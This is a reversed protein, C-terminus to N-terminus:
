EHKKVEKQIKEIERTSRVIMYSSMAVVTMSIGAGTLTILLNKTDQDTDAGFANLMATELTLMSVLASALVVIKATSMVPSGKKRYRVVDLIGVTTIYFTYAAMAYILMGRYRFGKDRFLIMLIAGTLFLNLLTLVAACARSRKWEGLLDAGLKNRNVYRLLLFRMTALVVYYSALVFFWATRYLYGSLINVGVYLLNVSLSVYLSIHTKFAADTMYRHGYRTGDLWLRIRRYQKPLVTACYISLVSVTYFAIVYAVCSVPHTEIGKTFVLILAVASFVALLLILWVPPYLFRKLFRKWDTM